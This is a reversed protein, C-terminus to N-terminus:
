KVESRMLLHRTTLGQPTYKVLEYRDTESLDSFTVEIEEITLGFSCDSESLQGVKGNFFWDLARLVTSKGSDKPGILTTILDLGISIGKRLRFNKITMQRLKM